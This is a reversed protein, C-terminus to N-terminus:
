MWGKAKYYAEFDGPTTEVPDRDTRIRIGAAELAIASLESCMYAWPMALFWRFPRPIRVGTLDSIGIMLDDLFGYPKGVLAKAAAAVAEAQQQTFEFRSVTVNNGYEAPDGVRVGEFDASVCLHESLYVVIHFADSHTVKEVVDGFTWPAAHCVVGIQGSFKDM